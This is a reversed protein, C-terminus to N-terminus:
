QATLRVGGCVPTERQHQRVRLEGSMLAAYNRSMLRIQSYDRLCKGESPAVSNRGYRRAILATSAANETPAIRYRRADIATETKAFRWTGKFPLGILAWFMSSTM